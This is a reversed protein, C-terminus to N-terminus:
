TVSAQVSDCLLWDMALKEEDQTFFHRTGRRNVAQALTTVLHETMHNFSLYAIKRNLNPFKSQLSRAKPFINSSPIFQVTRYDHIMRVTRGDDPIDKYIQIIFDYYASTADASVDLWKFYHIGADLYRYEFYKEM